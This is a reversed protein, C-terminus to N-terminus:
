ELYLDILKRDYALVARLTKIRNSVTGTSCRFQVSLDILSEDQAWLLYLELDQPKRCVASVRARIMARREADYVAQEPTARRDPEAYAEDDQARKVEALKEARWCDGSVPSSFKRIHRGLAKKAIANALEATRAMGVKRISEVLESRLQQALEDRDSWWATPKFRKVAASVSAEIFEAETM